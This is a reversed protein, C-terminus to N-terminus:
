PLRGRGADLRAKFAEYNVRILANRPDLRLATEYERGAEELAGRKEYAVALNNHAAASDPDQELAKKWNQVAEEWRDEGAAIVGTNLPTTALDRACAACSFLAFLVLLPVLPRKM